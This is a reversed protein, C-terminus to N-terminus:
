TMCLLCLLRRRAEKNLLLRNSEVDRLQPLHQM